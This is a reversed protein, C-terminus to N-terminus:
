IPIGDKYKSKGTHGLFFGTEPKRPCLLDSFEDDAWEVGQSRM